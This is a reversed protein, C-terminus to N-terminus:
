KESKVSGQDNLHVERQPFPIKIKHERFLADINFRIHSRVDEIVSFERSFFYIDFKLASDGFDNFRVFPSPYDLIHPNDEVAQLLLKKVLQTDSGYAVGVSVNFRAMKYYHSWNVVRDSVLNSNPVILTTSEWTEVISSRLGIKKVTGVTAGFAVEDGVEVSREFLLIIGSIVDNFTQQLGLGVGVLLAAAGGWILTMEIGISELAIMIAVFYLVYKLLQNIAYQSGINIDKQRYYGYLVIQIIVWIVLRAIMLILVFRFINSIKFNFTYDEKEYSFLTYDLQLTNLLVLIAFVYVIYQVVRSADKREEKHPLRDPHRRSDRSLEMNYIIIKNIILDLFRALMLILVGFIITSVHIDLSQGDFLMLDMGLFVLLVWIIVLLLALRSERVIRVRDKRNTDKMFFDTRLAMRILFRYSLVAGGIFLLSLILQGLSASWSGYDLLPYDLWDQPSM